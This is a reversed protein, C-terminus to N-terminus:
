TIECVALTLEIKSATSAKAQIVDGTELVVPGSIVNMAAKAPVAVLEVLRTAANSASSDLWQASVDYSTTGDVNAAQANQVIATTASPCTYVTTYSTGVAQRANKYTLAM